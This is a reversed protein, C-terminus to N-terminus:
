DLARGVYIRRVTDAEVVFDIVHLGSENDADVYTWGSEFRTGPEGYLLLVAEAPDGVKVGRATSEGPANIMFGIPTEQGAFRVEFGDYIWTILPSGGGFPNESAAISDPDGFTLRIEASDADAPVGSLTFDDPQLPLVPPVPAGCGAPVLAALALFVALRRAGGARM